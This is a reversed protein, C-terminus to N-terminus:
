GSYGSELVMGWAKQLSVDTNQLILSPEDQLVNSKVYM